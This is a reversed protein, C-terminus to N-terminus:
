CFNSGGCQRCHRKRNGHHCNSLPKRPQKPMVAWCSYGCTIDLKIKIWTWSRTSFLVMCTGVKWNNQRHCGTDPGHHHFLIQIIFFAVVYHTRIFVVIGRDAAQLTLFTESGAKVDHRWCKLVKSSLLLPYVSHIISQDSRVLKNLMCFFIKQM